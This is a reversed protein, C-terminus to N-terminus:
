TSFEVLEFSEIADKSNSARYLNGYVDIFYKCGNVCPAYNFKYTGALANSKVLILKFEVSGGKLEIFGAVNKERGKKDTYKNTQYTVDFDLGVVELILDTDTLEKITGYDKKDGKNLIENFLGRDRVNFGAKLLEKEITNYIPSQYRGEEQTATSNGNPVRLVIKPNPNNTLFDKLGQNTYIENATPKFTVTGLKKAPGCSSFIFILLLSISTLYNPKM